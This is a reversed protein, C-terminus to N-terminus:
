LFFGVGPNREGVATGLSEDNSAELGLSLLTQLGRPALRRARGGSALGRRRWAVVDKYRQAIEHRATRPRNQQSAPAGSTPRIEIQDAFKGFFRGVGGGSFGPLSSTQEGAFAREVLRM